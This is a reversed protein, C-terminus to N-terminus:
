SRADGLLEAINEASVGANVLAQRLQSFIREKRKYFAKEDCHLHRAIKAFSVGESWLKVILRDEAPLAARAERLADLAHQRRCDREQSMVREDASEGAAPEYRRGPASDGIAGIAGGAFDTLTEVPRPLRPPLRAALDSLQADTAKFGEMRLMECAERLTRRDRILLVEFRTALDGLSRATESPRWKGWRHNILDQLAHNVVVVIYTTLESRGQHKRLVACDDEWLKLRVDQIFDETDERSLGYRRCAKAAAREIIPLYELYLREM